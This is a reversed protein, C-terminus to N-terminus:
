IAEITFDNDPLHPTRRKSKKAKDIIKCCHVPKITEGIQFPLRICLLLPCAFACIDPINSDIVEPFM